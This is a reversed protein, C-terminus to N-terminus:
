KENTTKASKLTFIFGYYIKYGLTKVLLFKTYLKLKLKIKSILSKNKSYISTFENVISNLELLNKGGISSIGGVEYISIYKKLNIHNDLQNFATHINIHDSFIKYETDFKNKKLFRSPMLISQHCPITKEWWHEFSDNVEDMYFLKAVKKVTNGYIITNNISTNKLNDSIEHFSFEPHFLDGSNMFIIFDGSALDIGKNMADYIGNDKEIIFKSIHSNNNIFEISQDTSLGDIVIWEINSNLLPKISNYTSILGSHNNYNITIISYKTTVKGM